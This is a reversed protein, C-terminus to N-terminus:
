KELDCLPMPPRGWCGVKWSMGCGIGRWDLTSEAGENPSRDRVVMLVSVCDSSLTLVPTPASPTISRLPLVVRLLHEAHVVLCRRRHLRGRWLDRLREKLRHNLRTLTPHSPSTPAYAVLSELTEDRLELSFDTLKLQLTYNNHTQQSLPANTTTNPIPPSTM